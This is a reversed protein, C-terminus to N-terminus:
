GSSMWVPSCFRGSTCRQASSVRRTGPWVVLAVRRCPRIMRLFVEHCFGAQVRRCFAAGLSVSRALHFSFPRRQHTSILSPGRRAFRVLATTATVKTLHQYRRVQHEPSQSSLADASVAVAPSRANRTIGGQDLSRVKTAGSDILRPRNSSSMIGDARPLEVACCRSAARFFYPM